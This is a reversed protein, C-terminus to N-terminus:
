ETAKRLGRVIATHWLVVNDGSAMKEGHRSRHWGRRMSMYVRRDLVQALPNFIGYPIPLLPISSILISAIRGVVCPDGV